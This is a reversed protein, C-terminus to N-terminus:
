SATTTKWVGGTAAIVYITGPHTPDVVLDTIRGGVNTPGTLAWDGHFRRPGASRRIERAKNGARRFAAENLTAGPAGARQTIFWDDPEAPGLGEEAETAEGAVADLNAAPTSGSTSWRGRRLGLPRRTRRGLTGGARALHEAEFSGRRL